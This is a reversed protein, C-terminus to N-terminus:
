PRCVFYLATQKTQHLLHLTYSTCINSLSVLHPVPLCVYCCFCFGTFTCKLFHFVKVITSCTNQSGIKGNFHNPTSINEVDDGNENAKNAYDFDDDHGMDDNTNSSPIFRFVFSKLVICCVRITCLITLHDTLCISFM